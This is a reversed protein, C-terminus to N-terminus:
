DRDPPNGTPICSLGNLGNTKATNPKQPKPQIIQIHGMSFGGREKM